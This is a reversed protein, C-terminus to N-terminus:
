AADLRIVISHKVTGMRPIYAGRMDGDLSIEM